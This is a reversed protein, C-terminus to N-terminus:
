LAGPCKTDTRIEIDDVWYGSGVAPVNIRIVEKEGCGACDFTSDVEARQASLVMKQLFRCAEPTLGNVKRYIKKM